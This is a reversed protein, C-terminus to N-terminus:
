NRVDVYRRWPIVVTRFLRKKVYQYGGFNRWSWEHVKLLDPSSDDEGHPYSATKTVDLQALQSPICTRAAERLDNWKIEYRTIRDLGHRRGRVQVCGVFIQHSAVLLRPHWLKWGDGVSSKM